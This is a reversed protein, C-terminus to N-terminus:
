SGTAAGGSACAATMWSHSRRTRGRGKARCASASPRRRTCRGTSPRSRARRRGAAAEGDGTLVGKGGDLPFMAGGVDLVFVAVHLGHQPQDVEETVVVVDPERAHLQIVALVADAEHVPGVVDLDEPQSLVMEQSELARRAAQLQDRFRAAQEYEERDSAEIMQRDLRKLVPKSNGALFDGLADVDRRYVEETIGTQTPVCPGSCRGIDYYLCPRGARARQDFFHNTCTRIPFTRLLLDLTSRIAYAHAYPGFYKIGKRKRGRMVRARPFEEDLTVALYPYSKDDRYRVNYRPRYQKILNVELHLAEVENDVVIWEVDAAAEVMAQTRPHLDQAFYNSLRSRLRKAKGVYIVRKHADRFLYVGPKTPISGAAPRELTRKVAM